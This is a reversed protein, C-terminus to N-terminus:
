YNLYPKNRSAFPLLDESNKHTNKASGKFVPNGEFDSAIFPQVKLFNLWDFDYQAYRFEHSQDVFIYRDSERETRQCVPTCFGDYSKDQKLVNDGIVIGNNFAYSQMKSALSTHLSCTTVESIEGIGSKAWLVALEYGLDIGIRTYINEIGQENFLKKLDNKVFYSFISTSQLARKVATQMDLAKGGFYVFLGDGHLRHIYGDFILCTHIAARQITNTIIMVTEPTYRKFLNTSGKIDIFVSVIYHSETEESYKLHAFDPHLGLQKDFDPKLGIENSFSELSPLLATESIQNKFDKYTFDKSVRQIYDSLNEDLGRSDKESHLAKEITHLYDRYIDM